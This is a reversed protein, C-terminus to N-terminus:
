LRYNISVETPIVVPVVSACALVSQAHRADLGGGDSLVVGHTTALDDLRRGVLQAVAADGAEGRRGDGFSRAQGAAAHVLVVRRGIGEEPGGDRGQQLAAPVPHDCRGLGGPRRGLPDRCVDFRRDGVSLVSVAGGRIERADGHGLYAAVAHAHQVVLQALRQPRRQSAPTGSGSV